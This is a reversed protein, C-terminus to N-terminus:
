AAASRTAWGISDWTSSRSPPASRTDAAGAHLLDRLRDSVAIRPVGIRRREHRRREVPGARRARRDRGRLAGAPSHQDDPRAGAEGPRTRRCTGARAAVATRNGRISRSSASCAEGRGVREVAQAKFV